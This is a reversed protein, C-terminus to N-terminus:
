LNDQSGADTMAYAQQLEQYSEFLEDYGDALAMHEIILDRYAARLEDNVAWAARLGTEERNM